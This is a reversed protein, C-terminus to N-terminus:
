LCRRCPLCPPPSCRALEPRKRAAEMFKQLNEALFAIDKGSRDELVFTVGGSTGVGPIAPPPFAFGIAGPIKGLERNLHAMIAQYKEDPKKRKSWEEFSVFFFSSYTNNVGSLLSYGVVTSYYKVGPTNKLIEEVQHCLEDNRQLSATNPLQIGAFVYGQDEDPLFSTAVSKGLVGTLVM